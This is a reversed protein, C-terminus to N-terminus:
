YKLDDTKWMQLFFEHAFVYSNFAKIKPNDM